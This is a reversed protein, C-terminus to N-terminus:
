KWSKQRRGSVSTPRYTGTPGMHHQAQANKGNQDLHTRINTQGLRDIHKNPRQVMMDPLVSASRLTAKSSIGTNPM